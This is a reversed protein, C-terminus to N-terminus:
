YASIVHADPWPKKLVKFWCPTGHLSLKYLETAPITEVTITFGFHKRCQTEMNRRLMRQPSLNMLLEIESCLSWICEKRTSQASQWNAFLCRSCLWPKGLTSLLWKTRGLTQDSIASIDCPWCGKGIGQNISAHVWTQPLTEGPNAAAAACLMRINKKEHKSSRQLQMDRIFIPVWETIGATCCCQVLGVKLNPRVQLLFRPLLKAAFVFWARVWVSDLKQLRALKSPTVSVVQNPAETLNSGRDPGWESLPSTLAAQLSAQRHKLM